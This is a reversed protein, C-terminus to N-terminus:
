KLIFNLKTLKGDKVLFVIDGEELQKADKINTLINNTMDPKISCLRKNKVQYPYNFIPHIITGYKFKMKMMNNNFCTHLGLVEDHEVTATSLNYSLVSDGIKIDQIEKLYGNVYSDRHRRFFM